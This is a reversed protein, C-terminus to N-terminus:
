KVATEKKPVSANETPKKKPIDKVDVDAEKEDDTDDDDSAKGTAEFYDPNELYEAYKEVQKANFSAKEGISYGTGPIPLKVTGKM